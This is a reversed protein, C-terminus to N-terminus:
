SYTQNFTSKNLFSLVSRSNSCRNRKSGFRGKGNIPLSSIIKILHCVRSELAQLAGKAQHLCRVKHDEKSSSRWTQEVAKEEEFLYDCLHHQQMGAYAVEHFPVDWATHYLGPANPDVSAAGAVFHVSPKYQYHNRVSQNMKHRDSEIYGISKEVIESGGGVIHDSLDNQVLAVGLCSEHELQMVQQNGAAQPLVDPSYGERVNSQM